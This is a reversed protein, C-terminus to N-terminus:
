FKYLNRGFTNFIQATNRKQMDKRHSFKPTISREAVIDRDDRGRGMPFSLARQGTLKPSRQQLLAVFVSTTYGASICSLLIYSSTKVLRFRCAYPTRGSSYEYHHASKDSVSSISRSGQQCRPTLTLRKRPLTHCTSERKTAEEMTNVKQM